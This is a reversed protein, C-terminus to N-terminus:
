KMLQFFYKWTSEAQRMLRVPNLVYLSFAEAFYERVARYRPAFDLNESEKLCEESVYRSYDGKFLIYGTMHGVEHLICSELRYPLQAEKLCIEKQDMSYSAYGGAGMEEFSWDPLISGIRIQVNHDLLLRRPFSPLLALFYKTRSILDPRNKKKIGCIEIPPFEAEEAQIGPTKKRLFCISGDVFLRYWYKTEGVTYYESEETFFFPKQNLGPTLYLPTGVPVTLKKFEMSTRFSLLPKQETLLDAPIFADKGFLHIRWFYQKREASTYAVAKRDLVTVAEGKGFIGSVYADDEDPIYYCCGQERFYMTKGEAACAQSVSCGICVAALFMIAAAQHSYSKKM